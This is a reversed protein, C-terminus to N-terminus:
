NQRPTVLRYYRSTSLHATEDRMEVTGSNPQEPVDRLPLWNGQNLRNRYQVSYSKGAVASFRIRFHGEEGGIWETSDIKFCSNADRPDTGSVFEELNTHGDADPDASEGGLGPDAREAALFHRRQWNVFSEGILTFTTETLASWVSGQRVRAHVTVQETLLLTSTYELAKPSLAGGPLRPDTGDLTFYITGSSNPNSLILNFEPDISGGFQNFTPAEVQPYLGAARFHNLSLAFRKPIVQNLIRDREPRWYTEPTYLFQSPSTFQSDGWRAAEAAIAPEIWDAIARFRDKMASVTLAGQNFLHRHLQDGFIRRFEANARLKSYIFAPTNPNDVRTKDTALGTLDLIFDGDWSFFKFGAGPERRRSAYWNKKPWDNNGTHMNVILYNIFNEMDILEQIRESQRANGLGSRALSLATEWAESDGHIVEYQNDVGNSGIASRHKIADFENKEGGFHEAAYSEDPRETSRYLGWYLGNLYLHVFTGHAAPNGMDLESQRLFQDRAYTAHQHGDQHTNFTAGDHGGPLLIMSDFRDATSNKFLPFELKPHGYESKFDLRLGHKVILPFRTSGGQIQIGADIQFEHASHKLDFFEVSAPREWQPGREETNSYIGDPGFLDELDMVISLTPLSTLSEIMSLSYRPGNVIRRDMGYDAQVTGWDSPFGPPLSPQRIVQDLFLYTHTEVKSPRTDKMITVARVTTTGAIDIPGSYATGNAPHSDDAKTPQSGDTTYYIEAGPTGSTLELKFPAEFFGRHVSFEPPDLWQSYGPGNSDGPTTDAFFLHIRPDFDMTQLSLEPLLLFDEDVASTNLGHIALVNYGVELLDRFASLDITEFVTVDQAPRNRRATWNWSPLPDFKIILEPDIRFAIRNDQYSAPPDALLLFGENLGGSSWRDIIPIAKSQPIVLDYVTGVANRNEYNVSGLLDDQYDTGAVTAGRAGGAWASTGHRIAWTSHNSWDVNAPSLLYAEMTGGVRDTFRVSQTLRITVSQISSVMIELDTLDFRLQTSTKGKGIGFEKSGVLLINERNPSSHYPAWGVGSARHQVPFTVGNGGSDFASANRHAVQVGNLYAIFGDDYRIRLNLLEGLQPSSLAFPVRLYVTANKGQMTSKLDIGILDAYEGQADFGVAAVGEMWTVDPTYDQTIWSQGLSGDSPVHVAAQSESHILSDTQTVAKGLGFSVDPHQAPFEIGQAISGNPRILALYEGDRSLSFNTHLPSDPNRRNKGSAFIILYGKPALELKPFRWKTLNEPDDTLSWDLLKLADRSSNYIEIWDSSDGDEDALSTRNSAMFETILLHDGAGRALTLNLLFFVCFLLSKCFRYM